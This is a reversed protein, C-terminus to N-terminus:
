KEIKKILHNIFVSRAPIIGKSMRSITAHVNAISVKFEEAIVKLGAVQKTTGDPYTIEYYTTYALETPDIGKIWSNNLQNERLIKKTDDSHKKGYFPNHEGTRVRCDGCTKSNPEIKNTSCIPCLIQQGGNRWNPNSNGCKSFKKNREEKSLSQMWKRYNETRRKILFERDPHSSLTDGGNAPAINYGETNNDIYWQERLLLVTRSPEGMDEVVAFHFLDAGYLNYARQLHVNIHAGKRLGRKHQELRWDIDMSSGYYKKGNIKNEICYIGKM